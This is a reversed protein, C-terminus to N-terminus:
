RKEEVFRFDSCRGGELSRCRIWRGWRDCNNYSNHTEFSSGCLVSRKSQACFKARPHLVTRVENLREHAWRLMDLPNEVHELVGLAVVLDFKEVDVQFSRYDCQTTLAGPFRQELISFASSPEFAAARWEGSQQLFHGLFDGKGAGAELISGRAPLDTMERLIQHTREAQSVPAPGAFSQLSADPSKMMLSYSNKYFSETWGRTGGANFILGCGSCIRNDLSADRLVMMDSTICTGTFSPYIHQLQDSECCPCLVQTM